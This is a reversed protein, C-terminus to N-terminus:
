TGRGRILGMLEQRAQNKPNLFVGKMASTTTTVGPAKVGRMAMCLHEAEIICAVGLPQGMLITSVSITKGHIDQEEAEVERCLARELTDAITQTIREQTNLGKSAQRVLRALKSLGALRETPIYAVHAVGFFPVVHHECLSYFPINREVIMQDIKPDENLFTTFNFEESETDLMETLMQVFRHPTRRTHDNLPKGTLKRILAEALNEPSYENLSLSM